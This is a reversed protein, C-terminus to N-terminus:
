HCLKAEMGSVEGTIVTETCVVGIAIPNAYLGFAQATLSVEVGNGETVEITESITWNVEIVVSFLTKM